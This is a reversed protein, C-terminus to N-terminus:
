KEKETDTRQFMFINDHASKSTTKCILTMNFNLEAFLLKFCSTILSDAYNKYMFSYNIEFINKLLKPLSQFSLLSIIDYLSM